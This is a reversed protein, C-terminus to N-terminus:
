LKEWYLGSLQWWREKLMGWFKMLLFIWSSANNTLGLNLKTDSTILTDKDHQTGNWCPLLSRSLTNPSQTSHTNTHGHTHTHSLSLMVYRLAPCTYQSNKDAWKSIYKRTYDLCSFVAYMVHALRHNMSFTNAHRYLHQISCFLKQKQLPNKMGLLVGSNSFVM